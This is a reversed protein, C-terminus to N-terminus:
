PTGKGLREEPTKTPTSNLNRMLITQPRGLTAFCIAPRTEADLTSGTMQGLFDKLSLTGRKRAVADTMVLFRRALPGISLSSEPSLPNKVVSTVSGPATSFFVMNSEHFENLNRLVAATDALNKQVISTLTQSDFRAAEGEYCNDLMLLFPIKSSELLDYIEGTYLLSKGMEDANMKALPGAFDGPISFHSWGVGEGIGHGVFYYVIFPDPTKKARAIIEQLAEFVQSRTVFHGEDSRLLTGGRAGGRLLVEAVLRASKNGGDIRRFSKVGPQKSTRYASNGICVYFVDAGWAKGLFIVCAMITLLCRTKTM